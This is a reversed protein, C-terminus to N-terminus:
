PEALGAGRSRGLAAAAQDLCRGITDGLLPADATGSVYSNLTDTLDTEEM